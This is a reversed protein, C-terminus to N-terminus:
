SARRVFQAPLSIETSGLRDQATRMVQGRFEPADSLLTAFEQPHLAYVQAETTAVVSANRKRGTLLALEGLIQGDAVETEFGEGAVAFEGDVVVFCERGWSGRAILETTEDVTIITGIQDLRALEKRPLSSSLSSHRVSKPLYSNFM